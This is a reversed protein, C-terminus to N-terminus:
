SYHASRQNHSIRVSVCPNPPMNPTYPLYPNTVNAPCLYLMGNSPFNKWSAYCNSQGVACSASTPEILEIVLKVDGTYPQLTLSRNGQIAGFLTSRVVWNVVCDAGGASPCLLTHSEDPLKPVLYYGSQQSTRNAVM